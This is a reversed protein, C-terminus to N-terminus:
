NIMNEIEKMQTKTIGNVIKSDLMRAMHRKEAEQLTVPNNDVLLRHEPMKVKEGSRLRLLRLIIFKVKLKSFTNGHEKAYKRANPHIASRGIVNHEDFYKSLGVRALARLMVRKHGFSVILFEIGRSSLTEFHNKLANIRHTGGFIRILTTENTKDLAQTQLDQFPGILHSLINFMNESTITEDFNYIIQKIGNGQVDPHIQAHGKINNTPRAVHKIHSHVRKTPVDTLKITPTLSTTTDTVNDHISPYSQPDPVLLIKTQSSQKMGYVLFVFIFVLLLTYCLTDKSQWCSNKQPPKLNPHEEKDFTSVFGSATSRRKM